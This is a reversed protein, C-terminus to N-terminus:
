EARYCLCRPLISDFTRTICDAFRGLTAFIERFLGLQDDIYQLRNNDMGTKWKENFNLFVM